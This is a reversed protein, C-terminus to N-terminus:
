NKINELETLFVELKESQEDLWGGFEKFPKVIM